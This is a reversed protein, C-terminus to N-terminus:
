LPYMSEASLLLGTLEGIFVGIVAVYLIGTASQTNPIKLTEWAMWLLGLVFFLGFSWRLAVFLLWGVRVDPRHSWEAGLGVGVVFMQAVIAIAAVILLRRLPALEMGPANLYWHGLLMAAFVIGLVLGSNAIAIEHAINSGAQSSHQSLVAAVYACAAVLWLAIKGARASEYLWCAAGVFSLAAAAAAFWMAQTDLKMLALAALTALGLTVYLHNRFFGSTVKKPSTIAMGVALGFALRLLFQSLIEM